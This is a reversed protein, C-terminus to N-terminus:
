LEFDCYSIKEKNEWTVKDIHSYKFTTSKDSDVSRNGFFWGSTKDTVQGSWLVKVRNNAVQEVYGFKNNYTCVEKGLTYNNSVRNAWLEKLPKMELEFAEREVKERKLRAAKRNDKKIKDANQRGVNDSRLDFATQAFKNTAEPSIYLGVLTHSGPKAHVEKGKLTKFYSFLYLVSGHPKGDKYCISQAGKSEIEFYNRKKITENIGIIDPDNLFMRKYSLLSGRYRDNVRDAMHMSSLSLYRGSYSHKKMLELKEESTYHMPDLLNNKDALEFHSLPSVTGSCWNDLSNNAAEYFPHEKIVWSDGINVKFLYFSGYENKFKNVKSGFGAGIYEFTKLYDSDEKPEHSSIISYVNDLDQIAKKRDQERDITSACGMLAIISATLM